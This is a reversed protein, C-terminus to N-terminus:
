RRRLLVGWCFDTCMFPNKRNDRILSVPGLAIVSPSPCRVQGLRYARGIAQEEWTPNFCFDFLVVRTATVLNLGLGGARTSILFATFKGNSFEKTLSQRHSTKTTGDLRAFSISFRHFLKELYDLTPISHSFVLLQEGAGKSHQLIQMLIKIKNSSVMKEVEAPHKEFLENQAKILPDNDSSTGQNSHETTSDPEGDVKVQAKLARKPPNNLKEIFLKPHNCLLCLVSLWAWVTTNNADSKHEGKVYQVYLKYAEEQLPTLPLKLVFETKPPVEGELVTIDARLVKPGIIANLENLKRLSKRREEFTSEEYLGDEIPEKYHAKFETLTGLYGPAVWNIMAYYEELNNALPTGSLAIRYKTSFRACVKSRVSDKNRTVHAEDLVVINPGERLQIATSTPKQQDAKGPLPDLSILMEYGLILVGGFHHWASVRTLRKQLPDDQNITYVEGVNNKKPEPAWLNFEESWNQILSPPCVILIRPRRLKAPIQSSIKPNSSQAAESVTM